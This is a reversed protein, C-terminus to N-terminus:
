QGSVKLRSSLDGRHEVPGWARDHVYVTPGDIVRTVRDALQGCAPCQHLLARVNLVAALMSAQERHALQFLAEPPGTPDVSLDAVMVWDPAGPVPIVEFSM